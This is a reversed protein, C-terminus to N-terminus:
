KQQQAAPLPICRDNRGDTILRYVINSSNVKEAVEVDQEPSTDFVLGIM